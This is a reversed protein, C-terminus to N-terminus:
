FFFFSKRLSEFEWWVLYLFVVFSLFVSLFVSYSYKYGETGESYNGNPGHVKHFSSWNNWIKWSGIWGIARLSTLVPALDRCSTLLFNVSFWPSLFFWTLFSLLITPCPHAAWTNTNWCGCVLNRAGLQDGGIGVEGATTESEEQAPNQVSPCTM